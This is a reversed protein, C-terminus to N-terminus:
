SRGLSGVLTGHGAVDALMIRAINGAGCMSVLYVDGGSADDRFPRSFAYLDLGHVSVAEDVATTGGWIELCQLQHAEARM